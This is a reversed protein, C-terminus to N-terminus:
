PTPPMPEPRADSAPPGQAILEDVLALAERKNRVTKELQADYVRALLDQYLAGRPVGHRILDHGTLIPQPRLEEVPQTLVQRCYDIQSLDGTTALADAQHLDLLEEIGDATLLRQLKAWRLQKAHGLAMHQQVLWCVRSEERKSLKLRRSIAGAMGSGVTEHDHFTPKGAILEFTKPKGVDHLLAGLAVTFTVPEPLFGLVRLTHQWLDDGPYLPKQQTFGIMPVLEPLLVELLGVQLLLELGRVRAPLTLLGRLEQAIREASVVTIEGALQQIAEATAADLEFGFTATFRVARLMRLKDEALRRHPDGIARVVGRALDAQGAVFDIVENQLPDFYLGNITFDRRQADEEPSGFSVSDPHRGDSYTDDRRFTTVEVPPLSGPALVAIVGFAAGIALTRRHGFLERIEQPTASTAVDYDKPPRGLLQDRVCGGAWYATHGQSRL